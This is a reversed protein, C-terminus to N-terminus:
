GFQVYSVNQISGFQKEFEIAEPTKQYVNDVCWFHGDVDDYADGSNDCDHVAFELSLKTAKVFANCLNMYANAIAEGGNEDDRAVDGCVLESAFFESDIDYEENAEVLDLFVKLENPCVKALVEEDIITASAGGYGMSM